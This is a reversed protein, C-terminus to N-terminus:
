ARNASCVHKGMTEMQCLVQMEGQIITIPMSPFNELAPQFHFVHVDFYFFGDLCRINGNVGMKGGPPLQM